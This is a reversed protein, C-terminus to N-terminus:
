PGIDQGAPAAALRNQHSAESVYTKPTSATSSPAPGAQLAEEESVTAYSNESATGPKAGRHRAITRSIFYLGGTCISTYVAEFVGIKFLEPVHLKGFRKALDPKSAVWQGAKLGPNEFLVTNLGTTQLVVATPVVIMSTLLRGELVSGWTQKPEAKYVSLDAPVTGLRGDIWRAIHERRDEFLKVVPALLTGDAFSFFVMKAMDAAKEGMGIKKFGGKLWEGRKFFFGGIKGHPLKGTVPDPGGKSTLYTAVVSISFVGFNTLFPYLFADFAREGATRKPRVPMGTDLVAGLSTTSATFPTATPTKDNTATM